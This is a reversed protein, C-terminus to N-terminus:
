LDDFRGMFYLDDTAKVRDFARNLDYVPQPTQRFNKSVLGIHFKHISGFKLAPHLGHPKAIRGVALSFGIHLGSSSYATDLV